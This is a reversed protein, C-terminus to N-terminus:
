GPERVLEVDGTRITQRAGGPLRLILAGTEDMDEFIGEVHEDGHKVRVTKGLGEARALWDARISAFGNSLQQLRKSFAVCLAELATEPTVVSNDRLDALCTTPQGVDNPSHAINLGFGAAVWVGEDLAGAEILIGALKAGDVRVDNPWKLRADAGPAFEHVVDSVALGAVFPIKSADVLSGDFHFLATAYLNGPQSQWVRGLRGRGASQQHAVLWCDEFQGAKVRRAAELNTSDIVDFWQVPWIPQATM